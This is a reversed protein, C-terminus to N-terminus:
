KEKRSRGIYEDLLISAATSDIRKKDNGTKMGSQHIYRIALLSTYREDLQEVPKKPFRKQLLSCLRDVEEALPGPTGDQRYPYGVVIKEVESKYIYDILRRFADRFGRVLITESHSVIVGTPDSYAVGIRRRGYDIALVRAM